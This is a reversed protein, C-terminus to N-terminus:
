ISEGPVPANGFMLFHGKKEDYRNELVRYQRNQIMAALEVFEKVKHKLLLMTLMLPDNALMLDAVWIGVVKESSDYVFSYHGRSKPTLKAKKPVFSLIEDSVAISNIVGCKCTLKMLKQIGTTKVRLERGCKECVGVKIRSTTNSEM